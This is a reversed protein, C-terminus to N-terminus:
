GARIDFSSRGASTRQLAPDVRLKSLSKSRSEKFNAEALAEDFKGKFLGLLEADRLFPAAEVLAGFLYINPYATLAANTPAADSLSWGGLMRLTFTYAQDSPRDFAINPGNVTWFYPQGTETLADIQDAPLFRVEQRGTDTNRWLARAERYASPLAIFRSGVVGALAQDTEELRMLLKSNITVEALAIFDATRAALDTRDLWDAVAAKLEAYTSLAM